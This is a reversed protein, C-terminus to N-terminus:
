PRDTLSALQAKAEQVIDAAPRCGKNCEELDVILGSLIKAAEIPEDSLLRVLNLGIKARECGATLFLSRNTMQFLWSLKRKDKRDFFIRAIMALSKYDNILLNRQALVLAIEKDAEEKHAIAHYYAALRAHIRYKCALLHEPDDAIKALMSLSKGDKRNLYLESLEELTTTDSIWGPVKKLATILADAEQHRGNSDLACSLYLGIRSTDFTYCGTARYSIYLKRLNEIDVHRMYNHALSLVEKRLQQQDSRNVIEVMLLKAESKKGLTDLCNVLILDMATARDPHKNRYRECLNRLNAEQGRNKYMDALHQLLWEDMLEDTRSALRVMTKEAPASRGKVCQAHALAILARLSVRRSCESQLVQELATIDQTLQYTAILTELLNSQERWSAQARVTDALAKSREMAGDLTLLYALNAGCRLYNDGNCKGTDWLGQLAPINKEYVYFDILAAAVAADKDWSSTRRLEDAYRRGEAGQGIKALQEAIRTILRIRTQHPLPSDKCRNLTKLLEGADQRLSCVGVFREILSENRIFEPAAAVETLLAQGQKDLGQRSFCAAARLLIELRIADQDRSAPIRRALALLSKADHRDEYIQALQLITPISTLYVNERQVLDLAKDANKQDGMSSLFYAIQAYLDSRQNKSFPTARQISELLAVTSQVDRRRAYADGLVRIATECEWNPIRKLEAILNDVEVNDGQAACLSLAQSLLSIRLPNNDKIRPLAFNLFAKVDHLDGLICYTDMLFVMHQPKVSRRYKELACVITRAEELRRQAALHHALATGALCILEENAQPKRILRSYLTRLNAEQEPSQEVLFCLVTVFDSDYWVGNELLSKVTQVSEASQKQRLLCSALRIGVATRLKKQPATTNNLLCFLEKLTALDEKSESLYRQPLSYFRCDKEWGQAPDSIVTKLTQAPLRVQANISAIVDHFLAGHVHNAIAKDIEALLATRHVKSDKDCASVQRLLDFCTRQELNNDNSFYPTKLLNHIQSTFEDGRLAPPLELCALLYAICASKYSLEKDDNQALLRLTPLRDYLIQRVEEGSCHAGATRSVTFAIELDKTLDAVDHTAGTKVAGAKLFCDRAKSQQGRQMALRASLLLVREKDVPRPLRKQLSDLESSLNALETADFRVVAELENLRAIDCEYPGFKLKQLAHRIEEYVRSAAAPQQHSACNEALANLLTRLRKRLNEAKHLKWWSEQQNHLQSMANEVAAVDVSNTSNAKTLIDQLNEIAFPKELTAPAPKKLQLVAILAIAAAMGAVLLIATFKKDAKVRPIITLPVDPTIEGTLHSRLEAASQFRDKPDPALCKYVILQLYSPVSSPLKEYGGEQLRHITALVSESECPPSGTLVRYLVCGFSFIDSRADLRSPILHEPSFYGCSGLMADTQTLAQESLHVLGLDMVKVEILENLESIMINSPKLDRHVIGREHIASLGECIQISITRIEDLNLKRKNLLEELTRGEVLELVIYHTGPECSGLSYVEPIRPCAIESLVRWEREFRKLGVDSNLKVFKLAVHRGLVLDKARYVDSTAGRGLHQEVVYRHDILANLRLDVTM